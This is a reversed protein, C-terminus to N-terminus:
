ALWNQNAITCASWFRASFALKWIRVSKAIGTHEVSERFLTVDKAQFHPIGVITSFITYAQHCECNCVIINIVIALGLANIISCIIIATTVKAIGRHIARLEFRGFVSIIRAKGVITGEFIFTFKLLLINKQMWVTQWYKTRTHFGVVLVSCFM